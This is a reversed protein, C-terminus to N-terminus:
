GPAGRDWGPRQHLATAVVLDEWGQGVSKFVWPGTSRVQREGRLVEGLTAAVAIKPDHGMAVLVDGAEGLAGQGELYIAARSLLAPPLETASATHSGVAAVIAAADIASDAFLPTRASTCTVVLDFSPLEDLTVVDIRRGLREGTSAALSTAAEPRRAALALRPPAHLAEIADLHARAQPGSGIVMADEIPRRRNAVFPGIGAMSLAATRVATLQAAPGVWLTSLTAADLLVYLGQIRPLNRDANGPAAAVLKVGVHTDSEAPMLLLYGASVDYHQRQPTRLDLRDRAGELIAATALRYDDLDIVAPDGSNSGPVSRIAVTSSSGM